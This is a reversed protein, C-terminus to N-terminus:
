PTVSAPTASAPIVSAVKGAMYDLYRQAQIVYASEPYAELVARFADRARDTKKMKLFTDGLLVLAEAELSSAVMDDGVGRAPGGSKANARSVDDGAKPGKPEGKADGKTDPSLDIARRTGFKRLAYEIRLVAADYNGKMLYFRAVSLEHRILKGTVEALLKQLNPTEKARPYDHVFSQMENYAELVTAQDREEGAPLVFSDGIQRYQAMAIKSRAYVIDEEDSPHDHVFQKYARVADAFKELELDCDAIKLEALRAYRSYGYKRKVERFQTQAELYNHADFEELATEYAKKADQTYGLASKAERDCGSLTLGLTAGLSLPALLSMACLLHRASVSM